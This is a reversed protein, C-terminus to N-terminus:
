RRRAAAVTWLERRTLTFYSPTQVDGWPLRLRTTGLLVEPNAEDLVVLPDRLRALPHWAPARAGYDLVVGGSQEKVAFPGFTRPAGHRDRQPVVAGALGTQECRVNFGVLEANERVFVKAFTKWTLREALPPLGLSVGHYAFGELANPDFPKGQAFLVALERRPLQVLEEVTLM